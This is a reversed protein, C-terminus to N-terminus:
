GHRARWHKMKAEEAKLADKAVIEARAAARASEADREAQAKSAAAKESSNFSLTQATYAALTLNAVGRALELEANTETLNKEIENIHATEENLLPSANAGEGNFAAALRARTKSWALQRVALIAEVRQQMHKAVEGAVHVDELHVPADAAPRVLDVNPHAPPRQSHTAPDEPPPSSHVDEPPEAAHSFRVAVDRNLKAELEKTQGSKLILQAEQLAFEENPSAALTLAVLSLPLVAHMPDSPAARSRFGALRPSTFCVSSFDKRSDDAVLPM